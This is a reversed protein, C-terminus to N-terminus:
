GGGFGYGQLRVKPACFHPTAFPDETAHAAFNLPSLGNLIYATLHTTALNFPSLVADKQLSILPRSTVPLSILVGTKWPVKNGM